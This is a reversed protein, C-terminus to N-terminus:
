KGQDVLNRVALKDQFVISKINTMTKRKFLDPLLKSEGLDVNDIKGVTTEIVFM